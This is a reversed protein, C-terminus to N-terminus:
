PAAWANVPGRGLGLRPRRQPLARLIAALGELSALDHGPLFVDINPLAAAMGAALPEFGPDGLLPNVWLLCHAARQLRATERGVLAADGREWGDSVVVVAAGRLHGLPGWTDNLQALCEGIRTGGAWDPVSRLATELARKQDAGGLLPTLRTLRTGFSFAEVRRSARRAVQALMLVARVYPEMSGSVDVVFVLRRPVQKRERWRRELPHGETRMAERLTLRADLDAGARPSARRRRTRRRPLTRLVRELRERARDLEEEGYDAFDLTRLREVPSWTAGAEGGEGEDDREAPQARKLPTVREGARAGADDALPSRPLAPSSPVGPRAPDPVHVGAWLAAFAADFVPVQARDSVLTAQLAWYAEDREDADVASLAALATQLRDTTVDLGGARLEAGFAVLGELALDGTV